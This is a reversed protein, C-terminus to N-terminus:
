SYLQELRNKHPCTKLENPYLGLLVIAPDYPFLISLKTLFKWVTKWLPQVIHIGTATLEQQKVYKGADPPTWQKPNQGAMRIPTRHYDQKSKRKDWSRINLM